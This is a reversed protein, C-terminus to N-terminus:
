CIPQTKAVISHEAILFLKVSYEIIIGIFHALIDVRGTVSIDEIATKLYDVTMM